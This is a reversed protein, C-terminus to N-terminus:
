QYEKLLCTEYTHDDPPNWLERSDCQCHACHQVVALSPTGVNRIRVIDYSDRHKRVRRIRKVRKMFQFLYAYARYKAGKQVQPCPTLTFHHTLTLTVHITLSLTQTHARVDVRILKYEAYLISRDNPTLFSCDNKCRSGKPCPAYVLEAQVKKLDRAHRVRKRGAAFKRPPEQGLAPGPLWSVVREV